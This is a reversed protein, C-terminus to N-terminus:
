QHKHQRLAHTESYGSHLTCTGLGGQLAGGLGIAAGAISAEGTNGAGKEGAGLVAGVITNAKIQVHAGAVGTELAICAIDVTAAVTVAHTAAVVLAQAIHTVLKARTTALWLAAPASSTSGANSRPLTATSGTVLTGAVIPAALAPCTRM